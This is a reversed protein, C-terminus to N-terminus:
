AYFNIASRSEIESAKMLRNYIEFNRIAFQCNDLNDGFVLKGDNQNIVFPSIDSATDLIGNVYIL